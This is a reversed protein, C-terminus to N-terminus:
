GFKVARMICDTNQLSAVWARHEESPRLAKASEIAWRRVAPPTWRELVDKIAICVQVKTAEFFEVKIVLIVPMIKQAVDTVKSHIVVMFIFVEL